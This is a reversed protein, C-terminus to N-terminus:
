GRGAKEPTFTVLDVTSNAPAILTKLTTQKEYQTTGTASNGYPLSFGEDAATYYSKYKRGTIRSTREEATASAGTRWYVRAPKFGKLAISIDDTGLQRHEAASIIGDTSAEKSRKSVTVRALVGTKLPQTFPKINVDDLKRGTPRESAAPLNHSPASPNIKWEWFEAVAKNKSQTPDGGNALIALAQKELDAFPKGM